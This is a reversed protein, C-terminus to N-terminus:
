GLLWSLLALFGATEWAKRLRGTGQGNRYRQFLTWVTWILAAMVAVRLGMNFVLLLTNM